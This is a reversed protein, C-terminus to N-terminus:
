ATLNQRPDEWTTVRNIHDIFFVRGKADIKEEWGVPLLATRAISENESNMPSMEMTADEKQQCIYRLLAECYLDRAEQNSLDLRATSKWPMTDLETRPTESPLRKSMTLVNPPKPSFGASTDIAKKNSVVDLTHAPFLQVAM